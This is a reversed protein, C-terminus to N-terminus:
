HMSASGWRQKQCWEWALSPTLWHPLPRQSTARTQYCVAEALVVRVACSLPPLLFLFLDRLIKCKCLCTMDDPGCCMTVAFVHCLVKHFYKTWKPNLHGYPEESKPKFVGIIKQLLLFVFFFVSVNNFILEICKSHKFTFRHELFESM